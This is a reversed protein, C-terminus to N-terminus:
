HFALFGGLVALAVGAVGSAISWARTDELRDIRAELRDARVREVAALDKWSTIAKEQLAVIQASMALMKDQSDILRQMIAIQQQLAGTVTNDKAIVDRLASNELRLAANEEVAELIAREEV